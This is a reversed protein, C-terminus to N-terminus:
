GIDQEAAAYYEERPTLPRVNPDPQHYAVRTPPVQEPWVLIGDLFVPRKLFWAFPVGVKDLQAGAVIRHLMDTAHATGSWQRPGTASQSQWGLIRGTCLNEIVYLTKDGQGYGVIVLPYTSGVSHNQLGVHIPHHGAYSM